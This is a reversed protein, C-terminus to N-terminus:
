KNLKKAMYEKLKHLLPHHEDVLWDETVDELKMWYLEAIDDAPAVPGQIFYGLYFTTMIKDDVRRYRWDDVQFSGIYELGDVTCKTEERVERKGAHEMSLDEVDAFGGIFRKKTQHPKRGFLFINETEKWIAVDVTPYVKDYSNHLGSIVGARWKSDSLFKDSIDKRIETGSIMTKSELEVTQHRGKYHPRFSDRSGYLIAKKGPYIEAIKSDLQRSWDEDFEKDVIPLITVGSQFTEIMMLERSRYPLPNKREPASAACGLFVIVNEHKSQVTKILEIHAEHLEHIQFRGIVVGIVGNNESM